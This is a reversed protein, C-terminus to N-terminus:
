GLLAATARGAPQHGLRAGGLITLRPAHTLQALRAAALPLLSVAGFVVTEGDRLAAAM